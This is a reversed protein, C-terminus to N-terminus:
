KTNFQRGTQVTHLEDIINAKNDLTPQDEIPPSVM